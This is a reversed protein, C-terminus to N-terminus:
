FQFYLFPSAEGLSALSYAFLAGTALAFARTPRWAPVPMAASPAGASGRHGVWQITNPLLWAVALGAAIWAMAQSPHRVFAYDQASARIGLDALRPLWDAAWRPIVVGDMGSMTGWLAFTQDLDRARFPVWAVVVALFTALGALLGSGPFGPIGLRSRLARWGHNAMLYLGHLGGWFVFTWNAGHWLGGLLMTVALSAYRRLAGHRNGGLPIYLYDRLFASLTMHWRRWFEIVSRSKYPSHFNLPLDVNFMLSLGVAMDSYGSFDFYLQLSYALAGIWAEAFTPGAAVAPADFVPGAFLALQDALAVKKFLGLAFITAGANVNDWNWAYTPPRDFQPMMQKHHLVPGAILHPFYTVFLAYHVFDYERAVGKYVDVIFAVQTFTFFSIGLPLVVDIADWATGALRGASDMFFNMYKFYGLVLLNVVLALVLLRRAPGPMAGPERARAIARGAGYNFAISALLLLVFAPNWWGYFFLSAAALWGAALLHGLRALAFFGALAAPLFYLIFEHSNFLM